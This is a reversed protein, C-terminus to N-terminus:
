VDVDADEYEDEAELGVDDENDVDAYDEYVDDGGVHVFPMTVRIHMVCVCVCVCVCGGSEKGGDEGGRM